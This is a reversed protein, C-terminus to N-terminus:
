LGIYLYTCAHYEEPMQRFKPMEIKSQVIKKSIASGTKLKSRYKHLPHPTELIEMFTIPLIADAFKLHKITM